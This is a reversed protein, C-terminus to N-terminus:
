LAAAEARLAEVPGKELWIAEWEAIADAYFDEGVMVLNVEPNAQLEALMEDELAATENLIQGLYTTMLGAIIERDEPAMEAWVRGSMIGVCPFMMQNSVMVTESLEWYNLKVTLELDMEIADVQGNSLADYVDPLPMPTPATGLATNFDRTAPSPTIRVKRGELDAATEIPVASVIQRLGAMGYGFGIVGAQAPLLELLEAATESTALFEAAEQNSDVLFPTFLAGFEEVRNSIEAVTMISLDVAGTQMQQLVEAENGLQRAPFVAMTYRGNTVEELEAAMAEAANTWIHGPPTILGMRLETQAMAAGSVLVMATGASLATMMMRTM